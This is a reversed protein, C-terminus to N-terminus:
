TPPSPADPDPVSLWPSLFSALAPGGGSECPYAPASGHQGIFLLLHPSKFRALAKVTYLELDKM